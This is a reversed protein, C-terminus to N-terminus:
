PIRDEHCLLFPLLDVDMKNIPLLSSFYSCLFPIKSVHPIWKLLWKKRELTSGFYAGNQPNSLAKLLISAPYGLHSSIETLFWKTESGDSVQVEM